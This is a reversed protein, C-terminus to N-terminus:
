PQSITITTGDSDGEPDTNADKDYALTGSIDTVAFVVSEYARSIATLAATCTGQSDTTCQSKESSTWEGSVVAGSVPQGDNSTVTATVNATWTRGKKAANGDLDSVHMSEPPLGPDNAVEVSISDTATHGDSDTATATLAYAGDDVGTTDWSISWGDTSDADAGISSATLFFEVSTVGASSQATVDITGSVSAADPPTTISVTPSEGSADLLSAVNVRVSPLDDYFREGPCETALYDRHGSIAHVEAVEASVPNVYTVVSQPDIAHRGSLEALLGEAAAVAAPSPEAGFRRHDRFDGLLAIGLNGSNWGLTHGATVIRSDPDPTEHAFEVGTGGAACPSSEDGSWRGEYVRGQEDILYHYGIDGWGNDIAHYEYIARVTGAPDPDDNGTATHHLTMVQADQFVVPWEDGSQDSNLRLDEDAGWEARSLCSGMAAAAGTTGTLSRLPGDTTNFAVVRPSVAAAPTGRVQFADAGHGAVLGSAWTGPGQAGDAVLPIWEGWDGSHGFRVAGNGSGQERRVSGDPEDWLVGVHDIPFGPVVPASGVRARHSMTEPVHVAQVSVAPLMPLVMGAIAAVVLSRVRVKMMLVTGLGAPGSDSDDHRWGKCVVWTWKRGDVRSCEGYLHALDQSM